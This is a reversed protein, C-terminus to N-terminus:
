VSLLGTYPIAEGYLAKVIFVNTDTDITVCKLDNTEIGLLIVIVEITIKFGKV